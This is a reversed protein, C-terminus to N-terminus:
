RITTRTDKRTSVMNDPTTTSTLIDMPVMNETVTPTLVVTGNEVPTMSPVVEM